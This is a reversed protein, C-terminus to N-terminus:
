IQWAVEDQRFKTLVGVIPNTLDPINILEQNMSKGAFQAICDFAVRIKKPNRPHYM